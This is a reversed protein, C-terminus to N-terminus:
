YIRQSSQLKVLFGKSVYCLYRHFTRMGTGLRWDEIGSGRNEIGSERDGIGSGAIGHFGINDVYRPRMFTAM